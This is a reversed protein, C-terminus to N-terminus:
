DLKPKLPPPKPGAPTAPKKPEEIRRVRIDPITTRYDPSWTMDWGAAINAKDILDRAELYARFSNPHVQFMLVSDFSRKLIVAANAFANGPKGLEELPTGGKALDPKIQLQIRSSTPYIAINVKQGRSNKWDFNKFHNLIKSRSYIYSDAGKKKIRKEVWDHKNRDFERNFMELPTIPDIIHIRDQWAIAYYVKADAPIPRSNPINVVTPQNPDIAPTQDLMAELKAIQEQIVTTKKNEEERTLGLKKALEKLKELEVLLDKSEEMSEELLAIDRKDEEIAEPTPPTERLRAEAIRLNNRLDDIRQNAEAVEEPTAPALDDLVKQVKQTV